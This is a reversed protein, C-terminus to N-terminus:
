FTISKIRGESLREDSTVRRASHDKM